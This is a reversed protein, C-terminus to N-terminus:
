SVKENECYVYEHDDRKTTYPRSGFTILRKSKFNKLTILLVEELAEEPKPFGNEATTEIDLSWLKIKDIDYEIEGPYETSIYQYIFRDFGYVTAGDVGEYQKIFEKCDRMDGPQVPHVYKGDLTVYDEQPRKSPMFLTPNFKVKDMFHGGRKDDWGRVLIERNYARVFTFFRM